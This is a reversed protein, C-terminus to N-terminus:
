KTPLANPGTARAQAEVTAPITGGTVARDKAVFGFLALVASLAANEWSMGGQHLNIIAAALGLLTTQWNKMMGSLMKSEKRDLDAARLIKRRVYWSAVRNKLSM